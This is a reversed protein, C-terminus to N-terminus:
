LSARAITGGGPRDELELTGGHLRLGERAFPLGLGTGRRSGDPRPLSFFREFLRPRAFGPIGPGRDLIEVVRREGQQSLRIEVTEGPPSFDLANAVLNRLARELLFRDGVLNPALGEIRLSIGRSRAPAELASAISALLSSLDIAESTELVTRREIASLELLRDVTDRMREGEATVNRLFRERDAPPLDPEGLIETAAAIATLPSKLEHALTQVYEEVYRRGEVARRMEEFALGLERIESRGLDPLPPSRGDRVARAHAALRQIPRSLWLSLLWGAVVMALGSVVAALAIKPRATELFLDISRSPKAVVVVGVVRGARRIPAAVHLTSSTEDSPDRRTTRAGYGGDLTLRVERWRSYDAGSDGGDPRSDFVVRGDADTVYVRLDVGTKRLEYIRAEFARDRVSRAGAAFTAPVLPSEAPGTELLSALLNATDVLNEEVAELYRTRLDVLVWRLFATGGGATLLFVALFVRTRLKM